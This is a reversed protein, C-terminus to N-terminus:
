AATGQRAAIQRLMRSVQAMARATQEPTHPRAPRHNTCSVHPAECRRHRRCAPEPCGRWRDIYRAIRRALAKRFEDIDEPPDADGWLKMLKARREAKIEKGSRERRQRM